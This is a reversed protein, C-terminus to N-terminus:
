SPHLSWQVRCYPIGRVHDVGDGRQLAQPFPVLPEGGAQAAGIGQEAMGFPRFEGGALFREGDDEATGVGADGGLDDEVLSQAVQEDDPHGPLM